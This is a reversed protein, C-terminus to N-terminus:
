KLLWMLGNIEDAENGFQRNLAELLNSSNTTEENSPYMWRVPLKGPANVNLSTAPNIPLQPWGTRRYEFYANDCDQMFTMLYKQDWIQRLREASASKYAAEGTFYSDIYDQTIAKGVTAANLGMVFSLAARVGNEYYTQSTGSVWGREIAEAILFCQEAYGVLVLPESDKQQVYRKNLLSYDRSNYATNIATFDITVDVGRYADMEDPTHGEGAANEYPAAYYFLRYDNLAKLKDVVTASMMTNVVFKDSTSYLPHYSNAKDVYTLALNDANSQMLRGDRVIEAFAGKVNLSAVDAKESLSMLVKLRLANTARLWKAPDGGFFIDGTFTGSSQAFNDAATQLYSLVTAFVQEQPDYVAKMIGESMGQGAQSCPVDGMEMTLKYLIHAKVFYEVGRYSSTEYASSKSAFSVMDDLNPFVAYLSFSGRGINNYQEAMQGEQAYAIYKPLAATALYAKADGSFKAMTTLASTCLLAPSVKTTTDPNTNMDEFNSCGGAALLSVVCPVIYKFISKM